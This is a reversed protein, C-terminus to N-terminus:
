KFHFQFLITESFMEESDAVFMVVESVGKQKQEPVVM